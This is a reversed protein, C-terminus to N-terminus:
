FKLEGSPELSMCAVLYGQKLTLPCSEQRTFWRQWRVHVDDDDFARGLSLGDVFIQAPVVGDQGAVPVDPIQRRLVAGHARVLVEGHGPLDVRTGVLPEGLDGLRDLAGLVEIEGGVGVALALRDGPVDALDQALALREVADVHLPHDEVLDGLGRHLFGELM